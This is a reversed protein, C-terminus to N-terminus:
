RGGDETAVGYLDDDMESADTPDGVSGDLDDVTELLSEVEAHLDVYERLARYMAEEVSLDRAEAVRRFEEYEGDDLTTRVIREDEENTAM